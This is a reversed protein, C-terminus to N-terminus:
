LGKFLILIYLADYIQQWIFLVLAGPCQDFNTLIFYIFLTPHGHNIIFLCVTFIQYIM